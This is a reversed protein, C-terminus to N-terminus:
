PRIQLIPTPISEAVVTVAFQQEQRRRLLDIARNRAVRAVLEPDSLEAYTVPTGVSM